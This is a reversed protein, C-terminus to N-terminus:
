PRVHEFIVNDALGRARSLAAEDRVTWVLLPRGLRRWASPAWHPLAALEYGIFDPLVAPALLLHEIAIVQHPPLGEHRMNGSLMGRPLHPAHRHMWLMSWPNFSQVAHEGPWRALVRCVAQELPGVVSAGTSKLEVLAPVRGDIRELVQELSPVHEDGDLLRLATLEALTHEAVRGHRGTMRELTEDHFVVVEGDATLHVDLEVPHGAAAAAEFAALSNEPRERPQEACHLGRHAIPRRRLWRPANPRIRPLSIWPSMLAGLRGAM